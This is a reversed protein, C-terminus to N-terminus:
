YVKPKFYDVDDEIEPNDLVKYRGKTNEGFLEKKRAFYPTSYGTTYDENGQCDPILGKKAPDSIKM